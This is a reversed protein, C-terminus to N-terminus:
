LETFYFLLFVCDLTLRNCVRSKGTNICVLKVSLTQLLTIKLHGQHSKTMVGSVKKLPLIVYGQSIRRAPYIIKIHM